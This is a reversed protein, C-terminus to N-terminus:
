KSLDSQFVYDICVNPRRTSLDNSIDPARETFITQKKMNYKMEMNSKIEHDINFQLCQM